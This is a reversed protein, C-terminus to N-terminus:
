KGKGLNLMATIVTIVIGAMLALLVIGGAKFFSTLPYTASAGTINTAATSVDSATEAIVNMLIVLLIIVVIVNSIINVSLKGM